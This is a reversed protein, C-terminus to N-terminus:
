FVVGVRLGRSQGIVPTVTVRSPLSRPSVAHWRDTQRVAGVIAGVVTGLVLGGIGAFLAEDGRSYDYWCDNTPCPDDYTLAALTAFGAGGWLAGAGISSLVPRYQGLSVELRRVTDRAIMTQQGTAWAIHLSDPTSAILIGEARRMKGSQDSELTVRLKNGVVPTMMSVTAPTQAQASTSTACCVAAVLFALVSTNRNM